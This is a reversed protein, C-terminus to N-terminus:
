GNPWGKLVERGAETIAWVELDRGTIRSPRTTGTAEILGAQNLDSCRMWYACGQHATLGAADAAELSTMGGTPAKAFATLMKGNQTDSRLAANRAGRKSTEMANHRPHPKGELAVAAANLLSATVEPQATGCEVAFAEQRCRQALQPISM